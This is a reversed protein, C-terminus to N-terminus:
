LNHNKFNTDIYNAMAVDKKTIQNEDFSFLEIGLSNFNIIMIPHHDSEIIKPLLGNVFNMVSEFSKFQFQKCLRGDNLLWNHSDILYETQLNINKSM